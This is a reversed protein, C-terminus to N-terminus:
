FLHANTASVLLVGSPTKTLVFQAKTSEIGSTRRWKRRRVKNQMIHESMQESFMEDLGIVTESSLRKYQHFKCHPFTRAGWIACHVHLRIGGVNVQLTTVGKERAFWCDWFCRHGDFQNWEQDYEAIFGPGDYKMAMQGFQNREWGVRYLLHWCMVLKMVPRIQSLSGRLWSSTVGTVDCDISM